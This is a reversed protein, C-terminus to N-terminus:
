RIHLIYAFYVSTKKNHLSFFISLNQTCHTSFIFRFGFNVEKLFFDHNTRYYFNIELIKCELASLLSLPGEVALISFFINKAFFLFNVSSILYMYMIQFFLAFLQLIKIM